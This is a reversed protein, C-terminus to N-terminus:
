LELNLGFLFNREAAPFFEKGVAYQAYLKDFINNVQFVFKLLPLNEGLNFRYWAIANAVFYNDVKNDNYSIYGKSYFESAKDQYNDSYYDSNYKFFLSINANSTSYTLILNAIFNPFGGLENGSLDIENNGFYTKGKSIFNRSYTGNLMVSFNKAIYINASLEVGTHITKDMNGTVPDGFINLQGNKVIENQFLMYYLNASFDIKNKSYNFGLEFDNMTEPKVLPKDFNYTGDPNQEFQPREGYYSGEADYYNKLRPERSVRAFSFFVNASNSLSYNIGARPNFFLNSISFNNNLYKENEIKYRNWALQIEGFIKLKESLNYTENAFANVIDKGGNYYYFKHLPSFGEPLGTAFHVQGYHTSRHIRFEGGFILKGNKHNLKLRPIWGFQDNDVEARIITNQPNQTPSFGYEHTMRLTTTDAWSGDFDFYGRGEVFFLASNFTLNDNIKWDNLIEFHPQFYYEKEEPRRKASWSYYQNNEYDYDWWSYNERRLKRDKIVNKPLGYYVLGDTIPGGYINIQTTLNKDYRAVSINFSKYDVWSLDRYGSQLTQTLNAYISYKNNILGSSAKASYTRLNYSGLQTGFSIKKENSFPSTIINVSGGIAPYGIVGNGAGRQVEILGTNGLLGPIDVWYVNHDEPDNQPIGNVSISIRRQGFGRINLYTYGITGGSESYFTTSPLYSVFEPVSQNTLKEEIDKRKIKEFATTSKKEGTLAEVLVTQSQLVKPKLSIIKLSNIESAKLESTEFGIFSISILDESSVNRLVFEGNENTATGIGKTKDFVNARYLPQNNGANVVKAKLNIVQANLNTVVLMILFVFLRKM